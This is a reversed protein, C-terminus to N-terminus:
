RLFLQDPTKNFCAAIKIAMDYSLKRKNNELLSYYSVSINLRKAMDYITYGMKIRLRKLKKTSYM